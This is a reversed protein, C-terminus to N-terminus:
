TIHLAAVGRKSNSDTESKYDKQERTVSFTWLRQLLFFFSDSSFSATATSFFITKKLSFFAFRRKDKVSSQIIHLHLYIDKLLDKLM